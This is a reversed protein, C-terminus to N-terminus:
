LRVTVLDFDTSIQNGCAHLQSFSLSKIGLPILDKLLGCIERCSLFIESRKIM